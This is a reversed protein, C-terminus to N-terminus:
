VLGMGFLRPLEVCARRYDEPIGIDIFYGTCPFGYFPHQQYYQQLFDHEFSFTEPHAFSLFFPKNLVYIGGNIWGCPKNHGKEHFHIIRCHHDIEVLGYRKPHQMGKLALSLLARAQQHYTIFQRISLMFLTDGNCILVEESSTFQLAYRIAGGTGLPKPEIAYEITLHDYQDGFYQRIHEHKYGVSLIVHQIGEGSLYSLLYALFPKEGIPAMPKPVERIVTRLRTGLGGALVIAEYVGDDHDKSM